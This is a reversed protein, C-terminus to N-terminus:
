EDVVEGAVTVAGAATTLAVYAKARVDVDETDIGLSQLLHMVAGGIQDVVKEQLSIQRETLGLGIAKLSLNTLHEREKLYLQMWLYSGGTKTYEELETPSLYGSSRQGVWMAQIMDTVNSGTIREQLWLVHGQTRFLEDMLAQEPTTQIPTGYTHSLSKANEVLRKKFESEPSMGSHLHTRCKDYGPLAKNKCPRGGDATFSTCPDTFAGPSKPEYVVRSELPVDAEEDTTNGCPIIITYRGLPAYPIEQFVRLFRKAM